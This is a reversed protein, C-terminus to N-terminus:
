GCPFRSFALPLSGWFGHCHTVGGNKKSVLRIELSEDSCSYQDPKHDTTATRSDSKVGWILANILSECLLPCIICGPFSEPPNRAVLGTCQITFPNNERFKSRVSGEIGDRPSLPHLSVPMETIEGTLSGFLSSISISSRDVRYLDRSFVNKAPIKLPSQKM